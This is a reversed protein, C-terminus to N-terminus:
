HNVDSMSRLLGSPGVISKASSLPYKACTGTRYDPQGSLWFGVYRSVANGDSWLFLADDDETRQAVISEKIPHLVSLVSSCLVLAQPWSREAVYVRFCKAGFRDWGEACQVDVESVIYNADTENGSPLE